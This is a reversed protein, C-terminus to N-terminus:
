KRMYTQWSKQMEFLTKYLMKREKEFFSHEQENSTARAPLKEINYQPLYNQLTAGDVDRNTEFISIQETINKLQRVNGPWRYNLLVTRADETLQIVPMRYREAFDTSFKRFLLLIDESRERLPPIEIHITSLRYYLDERFKGESVAKVM